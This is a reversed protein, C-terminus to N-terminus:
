SELRQSQPEHFEHVEHIEHFQGHLNTCTSILVLFVGSGGLVVEWHGVAVVVHVVVHINM